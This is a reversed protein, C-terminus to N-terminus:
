DGLLASSNFLFIFVFRNNFFANFCQIKLTCLFETRDSNMDFKKSQLKSLLSQDTEM